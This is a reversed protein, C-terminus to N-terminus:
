PNRGTAKRKAIENKYLSVAVETGEDRLVISDAKYQEEIALKDKEYTPSTEDLGEIAKDREVKLHTKKNINEKKAVNLGSFENRLGTLAEKAETELTNPSIRKFSAILSKVYDPVDKPNAFVGLEDYMGIIADSLPTTDLALDNPLSDLTKNYASDLLGEIEKLAPRLDENIADHPEDYAKVQGKNIAGVSVENSVQVLQEQTEELDNIYKEFIENFDNSM